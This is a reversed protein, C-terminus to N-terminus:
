SNNLIKKKSQSIISHLIILFLFYIAGYFSSYISQSPLFPINILVFTILYGYKDSDYRLITFSKTFLYILYSSFILFGLLGHDTLTEIFINHPHNSCLYDLDKISLINSCNEKYNRFGNGFFINEKWTLIGSYYNNLYIDLSSNPKKANFQINQLADFTQYFYRDFFKDNFNYLTYFLVICSILLSLFYKKYNKYFLLSIFFLGIFLQLLANREGSLFIMLVVFFIIFVFFKNKELFLYIFLIPFFFKLLFSGYIPEDRFLSTIRYDDVLNYGLINTGTIYQFAGDIVLILILLFIYKYNFKLFRFHEIVIIIFFFRIFALYDFNYTGLIIDKLLIYIIFLLLFFKGRDFNINKYKFILYVSFLSLLTVFINTFAPGLVYSFVYFLLINNKFHEIYIERKQFLKTHFIAM